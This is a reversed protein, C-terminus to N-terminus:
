FDIDKVRLHLTELIRMATGYFISAILWHTGSLRGLVAQVESKTLVVPLRKPTKAQEFNDLWPLAVGLIEKYLFM